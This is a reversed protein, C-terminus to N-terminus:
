QKAESHIVMFIIGGIIALILVAIGILMKKNM